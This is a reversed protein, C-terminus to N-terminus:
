REHSLFILQSRNLTFFIPISYQCVLPLIWYSGKTPMTIYEIDGTYLSTNTYGLCRNLGRYNSICNFLVQGYHFLRGTRRSERIHCQHVQETTSDRM